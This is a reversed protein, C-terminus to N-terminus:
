TSESILSKHRCRSSYLDNKSASLFVDTLAHFIVYAQSEWYRYLEVVVVITMQAVNKKKRKNEKSDRHYNLNFHLCEDKLRFKRNITVNLVDEFFRKYWEHQSDSLKRVINSFDKRIKKVFEQIINNNSEHKKTQKKTTWKQASNQVSFNSTELANHKKKNSDRQFSLLM